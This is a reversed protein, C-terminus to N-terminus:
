MLGGMKSCDRTWLLRCPLILCVSFSITNADCVHSRISSLVVKTVKYLVDYRLISRVYSSMEQAVLSLGIAILEIREWSGLACLEM